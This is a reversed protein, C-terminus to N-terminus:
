PHAEIARTDTDMASMITIAQTDIQRHRHQTHFHTKRQSERAGWLGLLPPQAVEPLVRRVIQVGLVSCTRVSRRM